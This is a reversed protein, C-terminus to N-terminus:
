PTPPRECHRDGFAGELGLAGYFGCDEPNDPDSCVHIWQTPDPYVVCIPDANATTPLIAAALAAAALVLKMPTHEM